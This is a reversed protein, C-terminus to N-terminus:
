EQCIQVCHRVVKQGLTGNVSLDESDGKLRRGGVAVRVALEGEAAGVAGLVSAVDVVHEYGGEAASDQVKM